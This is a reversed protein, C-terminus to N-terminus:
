KNKNTMEKRKKKKNKIKRRGGRDVRVAGREGEDVSKRAIPKSLRANRGSWTQIASSMKPKRTSQSVSNESCTRSRSAPPGKVMWIRALMTLSRNAAASLRDSSCVDSSWDSMRM